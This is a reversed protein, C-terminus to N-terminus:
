TALEKFQEPVDAHDIVDPHYDRVLKKYQKTIQDTSSTPEVGLTEYDTCNVVKDKLRYTTYFDELVQESFKLGCRLEELIRRENPHLVGDAM